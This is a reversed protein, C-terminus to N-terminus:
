VGLLAVEVGVEVLGEVGGAVGDAVTEKPDSGVAGIEKGDDDAHLALKILEGLGVGFLVMQFELEGPVQPFREAIGAPLIEKGGDM